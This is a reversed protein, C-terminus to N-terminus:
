VGKDLNYLLAMHIVAVIKHSWVMKVKLTVYM